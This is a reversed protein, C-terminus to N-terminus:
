NIMEQIHETDTDDFRWYTDVGRMDVTKDSGWLRGDHQYVAGIKLARFAVLKVPMPVIHRKNHSNPKM